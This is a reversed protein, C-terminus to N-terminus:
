PLEGSFIQLKSVRDIVANRAHEPLIRYLIADYQSTYEHILCVIQSTDYKTNNGQSPCPFIKQKNTNFPAM